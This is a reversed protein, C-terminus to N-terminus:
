RQWSAYLAYQLFDPARFGQKSLSSCRYLEVFENLMDNAEQRRSGHDVVVVATTEASNPTASHDDTVMSGASVRSSVTQHLRRSSCLQCAAAAESSGLRPPTVTAPGHIRLSAQPSFQPCTTRRHSLPRSNTFTLSMRLQLFPCVVSLRECLFSVSFLLVLLLLPVPCQGQSGPRGRAHTSRGM